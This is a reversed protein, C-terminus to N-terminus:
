GARLHAVSDFVVYRGDATITPLWNYYDAETGDTAVSVRETIPSSGGVHISEVTYDEDATVGDDIYAYLYYDRGAPADVTWDFSDAPDDESVGTAITGWTM